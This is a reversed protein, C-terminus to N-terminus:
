LFEKLRRSLQAIPLGVVNYYDGFIEKVLLAGRGEQLAYSGAKDMYNENKLYDLIDEDTLDYFQVKTIALFSEEKQSSKICVGTVVEHVKGSLTKLMNIADQMDKPKGFIEGDLCVLTDATIAVEDESIDIAKSKKASLRLATTKVDEGAILSEDVEPVRIEFSMGIQNLLEKRRPSSSGLIIKRM